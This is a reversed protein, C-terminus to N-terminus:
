TQAVRATIYEANESLFPLRQWSTVPFHAAPTQGIEIGQRPRGLVCLCPLALRLWFSSVEAGVERGASLTVRKVRKESEVSLAARCTDRLHRYFSKECLSM